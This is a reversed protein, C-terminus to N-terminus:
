WMEKGMHARKKHIFQLHNQLHKNAREVLGGLTLKGAESHIGYHEWAGAPVNRLITVMQKRILQFLALSDATSQKDVALSAMWKNEDYALLPSGDEAIVRKMRDALVGDSDALHVLIEHISWLGVKADAAPRCRMDEDTLGRVALSLETCGNEYQAVLDGSM